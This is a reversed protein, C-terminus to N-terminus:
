KGAHFHGKWDPWIDFKSKMKGGKKWTISSTICLRTHIQFVFSLYVCNICIFIKGAIINRVWIGTSFDTLEDSQLLHSLLRGIQSYPSPLATYIEGWCWNKSRVHPDITTLSHNFGAPMYAHHLHHNWILSPQLLQNPFWPPSSTDINPRGIQISFCWNM